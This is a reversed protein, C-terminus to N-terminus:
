SWPLEPLFGALAARRKEALDRAAVRQMLEAARQAAKPHKFISGDLSQFSENAAFFRYGGEQRVIVGAAVDSAEIIFAEDSQPVAKYPAAAPVDSLISMM